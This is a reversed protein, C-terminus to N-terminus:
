PVNVLQAGNGRLKQVLDHFVEVLEQLGGATQCMMLMNRAREHCNAHLVSVSGKSVALWAPPM